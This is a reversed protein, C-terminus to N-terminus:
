CKANLMTQMTPNQIKTHRFVMDSVLVNMWIYMNYQYVSVSVWLYVWIGIGICICICHAGSLTIVSLPILGNISDCKVLNVLETMGLTPHLDNM